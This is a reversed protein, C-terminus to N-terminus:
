LTVCNKSILHHVFVYKWLFILSVTDKFTIRTQPTSQPKGSWCDSVFIFVYYYFQINYTIHHYLLIDDLTLHFSIISKTLINFKIIITNQDNKTTCNKALDQNLKQLSNLLVAAVLELLIFDESASFCWSLTPLWQIKDGKLIFM